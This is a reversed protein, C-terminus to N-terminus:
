KADLHRILDDASEVALLEPADYDSHNALLGQLAMAAIMDRRSLPFQPSSQTQVETDLPISDLQM